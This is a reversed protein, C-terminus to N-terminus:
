KYFFSHFLLEPIGLINPLIPSNNNINRNMMYTGCGIYLCLVGGALAITKEDIGGSQGLMYNLVTFVPVAMLVVKLFWSSDSIINRFANIISAM